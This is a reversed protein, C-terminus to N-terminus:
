PDVLSSGFIIWLSRLHWDELTGARGADTFQALTMGHAAAEDALMAAIEQRTVTAMDGM